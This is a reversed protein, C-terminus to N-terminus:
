PNRPVELIYGNLEKGIELIAYTGPAGYRGSPSFSGPNIFLVGGIKHCVPRHTHGYVICDVPAFATLLSDELDLAYGYGYGHTLAITHNNISVVKEGSYKERSSSHCMNGHVAHLEKGHFVDLVHKEVIDGAHFIIPIDAFCWEVQRRFMETPKSLHTDSLIGVTVPDM